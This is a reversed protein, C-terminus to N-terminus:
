TWSMCNLTFNGHWTLIIQFLLLQMKFIPLSDAYVVRTATSFPTTWKLWVRLSKTFMYKSVVVLLNTSFFTIEIKLMLTHIAKQNNGIFSLFRCATNCIVQSVKKVFPNILNIIIKRKLFTGKSIGFNSQLNVVLLWCLCPVVWHASNWSGLLKINGCCTHIQIFKMLIM